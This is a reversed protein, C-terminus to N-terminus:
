DNVPRQNINRTGQISRRDLKTQRVYVEPGTAKSGAVSIIPLLADKFYAVRNSNKPIIYNDIDKGFFSRFKEMYKYITPNRKNPKHGTIFWIQCDPFIEKIFKAIDIGDYEMMLGDIYNCGGITIDLLAIDIKKIKGDRHPLSIIDCVDDVVLEHNVKNYEDLFQKVSFAAMAGDAYVINLNDLLSLSENDEVETNLKIAKLDDMLVSIIGGFDDMMLLTQLNSDMANVMKIKPVPIPINLKNINKPSTYDLEPEQYKPDINCNQEATCPTCKASREADGRVLVKYGILSFIYNLLRKFREM